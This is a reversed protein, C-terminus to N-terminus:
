PGSRSFRQALGLGLGTAAVIGVFASALYPDCFTEVLVTVTVAAGLAPYFYDRGRRVASVSLSFVLVTALSVIVWWAPAGLEATVQAATTPPPLTTPSFEVQYIPAVASFTGAGRGLWDTENLMRAVAAIWDSSQASAFRLALPLESKGYYGIATLVLATLIAGVGIVVGVAPWRSWRLVMIIVMVACGGLVAVKLQVLGWIVATLSCIILTAIALGTDLLHGESRRADPVLRMSAREIERLVTSLSFLVGLAAVPMMAAAFRALSNSLECVVIALSTMMALATAARLVIAAQQRDLAV